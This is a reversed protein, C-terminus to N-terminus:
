RYWPVPLIPSHRANPRIEPRFAATSVGQDYGGSRRLLVIFRSSPLTASIEPPARPMPPSVARSITSAPAFTTM